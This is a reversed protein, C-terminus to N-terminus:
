RARNTECTQVCPENTRAKCVPCPLATLTDIIRQHTQEALRDHEAIAHRASASMAERTEDSFLSTQVAM